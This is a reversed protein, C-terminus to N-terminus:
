CLDDQALCPGPSGQRVNADSEQKRVGFVSSEGNYMWTISQSISTDALLHDGLKSDEMEDGHVM